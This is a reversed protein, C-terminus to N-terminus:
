GAEASEQLTRGVLPCLLCDSGGGAMRRRVDTGGEMAFDGLADPRDVFIGGCDRM